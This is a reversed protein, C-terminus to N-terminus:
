IFTPLCPWMVWGAGGQGMGGMRGQGAYRCFYRGRAQGPRCVQMLLAGQGTRCLHMLLAGECGLALSNFQLRCDRLLALAQMLPPAPALCLLPATTYPHRSWRWPRCSHHHLPLACHHHPPTPSCLLHLAFRLGALWGGVKHSLYLGLDNDHLICREMVLQGAMICVAAQGMQMQLPCSVRPARAPPM